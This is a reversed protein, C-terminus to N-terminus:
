AGAYIGRASAAQLRLRLARERERLRPADGQRHRRAKLFALEIWDLQKARAAHRGGPARGLAFGNWLPLIMLASTTHAYERPHLAHGVEDALWRAVLARDRLALGLILLFFLADFCWFGVLKLVLGLGGAFLFTVLFNHAFHLAVACSWGLVPAVLRGLAGRVETAAIGVGLGTMATFSAHGLGAMATRLTWTALMGGVGSETAARAVYLVDETLTFGLGILGGYIAGDLPGDLEDLWMASLAWLLLLGAGKSSEEVLPAVFSATSAEVLEDGGSGHLALAVASHGMANGVMAVATAVVAGWLFCLLLLWGPEPEYRDAGKIVFVYFLVLPAVFGLAVLVSM